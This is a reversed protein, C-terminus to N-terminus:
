SQHQHMDLVVTLFQYRLFPELVLSLQLQQLATKSEQAVFKVKKQFTLDTDNENQPNFMPRLNDVYIATSGVGVSKIIYASPNIVPEYLERDKGIAIEDVFVDETQKCWIVPRDLTIDNTNGPGFYPNTSVTSTSKVNDVIREDEILSSDQSRSPDNKLQLSDGKKM